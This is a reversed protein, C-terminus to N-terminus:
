RSRDMSRRHRRVLRKAENAAISMLWPRLRDPDRLGGLKRCAVSWAGQVADQALDADRAILYAIRTMDDHHSAVISALADV